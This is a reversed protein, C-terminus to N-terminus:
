GFVLNGLISFCILIGVVAWFGPAQLPKPLFAFYNKGIELYTWIFWFLAALFFTILIGVFWVGIPFLALSFHSM